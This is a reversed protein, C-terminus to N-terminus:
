RLRAGTVERLAAYRIPLFCISILPQARRLSAALWSNPPPCLFSLLSTLCCLFRLLEYSSRRIGIGPDGDLGSVRCICLSVWEEIM